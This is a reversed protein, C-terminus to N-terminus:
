AQDDGLLRAVSVDVQSRVMQILSRVTQEGAGVEKRLAAHTAEMLRAQAADLWRAATTRHVGFMVGLADTNLGDVLRARLLRRDRQTLADFAAYMAARVTEGYQDRLIRFQPEAEAGVVEALVDPAMLGEKAAGRSRMADIAMRSVVVRIWGQLSGRGKYGLMQPRGDPGEVLLKVWVRQRLEEADTEGRVARSIARDVDPGFRKCVADVASANGRGATFALFLDELREAKLEELAQVDDLAAGLHECWAAEDVEVGPFRARAVILSSQLRAELRPHAEVGTSNSHGRGFATALPYPSSV